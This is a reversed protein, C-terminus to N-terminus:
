SELLTKWIKDPMELSSAFTKPKVLDLGILKIISVRATGGGCILGLMSIFGYFLASSSM